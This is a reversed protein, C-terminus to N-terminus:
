RNSQLFSPKWDEELRANLFVEFLHSDTRSLQNAHDRRVPACTEISSSPPPAAHAQLIWRDDARVLRQMVGHLLSNSAPPGFSIDMTRCYRGDFEPLSGRPIILAKWVGADADSISGVDNDIQYNTSIPEFADGPPGKFWPRHSSCRQFVAGAEM